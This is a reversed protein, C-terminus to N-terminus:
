YIAIVPPKSRAFDADLESEGAVSTANKINKDEAANRKL